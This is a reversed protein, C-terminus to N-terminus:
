ALMFHSSKFNIIIFMLCLVVFRPYTFQTGENGTIPCTKTTHGAERYKGRKRSGQKTCKAKSIASKTKVVTPNRLKPVAWVKKNPFRDM